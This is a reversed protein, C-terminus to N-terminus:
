DPDKNALFLESHLRYESVGSIAHREKRKVLDGFAKAFRCCDSINRDRYLAALEKAQEARGTTALRRRQADNGSQFRRISTRDFEFPAVYSSKLRLPTAKAHDKL